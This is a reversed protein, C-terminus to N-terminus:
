SSAVRICNKAEAMGMLVPVHKNLATECRCVSYVASNENAKRIGQLLHLFLERKITKCLCGPRGLSDM